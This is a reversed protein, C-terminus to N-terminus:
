KAVADPCNAELLFNWPTGSTALNHVMMYVANAGSEGNIYMTLFSPGGEGSPVGQTAVIPHASNLDVLKGFQTAAFNTINEYVPIQDYGFAWQVNASAQCGWSGVYTDCGIGLSSMNWKSTYNGSNFLTEKQSLENQIQQVQSDRGQACEAVYNQSPPSACYSSGFAWVWSVYESCSALPKDTPCSPWSSYNNSIAGNSCHQNYSAVASAGGSVCQSYWDGSWWSSYVATSQRQWGIWNTMDIKYYKTEGPAVTEEAGCYTSYRSRFAKPTLTKVSVNPSTPSTPTSIPTTPTVAIAPGNIYSNRDTQNIQYIADWDFGMVIFADATEVWQRQGTDGAPTLKYVKLDNLARVLDSTTFSNVVSQDVVKIDSWHLHQYSNFVQPSLILRKFKKTGVYKVIYVDIDGNARILGGELISVSPNSPTSSSSIINFDADSEDSLNTGYGWATISIRYTGDELSIPVTWSYYGYVPNQNITGSVIEQGMQNSGFTKRYQIRVKNESNAPMWNVNWLIVFNQGKAISEGGNPNEITVAPTLEPQSINFTNDSEDFVSNDSINAVRIKFGSGVYNNPIMWSFSGSNAVTAISLVTNGNLMLTLSVANFTGSYNWTINHTSGAVWQDGGNPSTVTISAAAAPQIKFIFGAFLLILGIILFNAKKSMKIRSDFNFASDM